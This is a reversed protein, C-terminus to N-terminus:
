IIIIERRLMGIKSEEKIKYIKVKKTITWSNSHISVVLGLGNEFLAASNWPLAFVKYHCCNSAKKEQKEQIMIDNIESICLCEYAYKYMLM